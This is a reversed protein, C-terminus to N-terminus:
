ILGENPDEANPNRTKKFYKNELRIEEAEPINLGFQRNLVALWTNLGNRDTIEEMPQGRFYVANLINTFDLETVNHVHRNGHDSQLIVIADPDTKVINECVNRLRKSTYILQNLYLSKDTTDTQSAYPVRGGDRDFVYPAHPCQVYILTCAPGESRLNEPNEAWEFVNLIAERNVKKTLNPAIKELLTSEVPYLVSSRLLLNAVTDGAATKPAQDDVGAELRNTLRFKNTSEAEYVEYGLNRLITWLPADPDAAREKKRKNSYRGYELHTIDGMICYTDYHWNRSHESVTFGLARLEDYFASNDYHYYKELEDIGAYEDAVIWYIDPTDAKRAETLDYAEPVAAAAAEQPEEEAEKPALANMVGTSLIVAALALALVKAADQLFEEKLRSLGFTAALTLLVAGAVIAKNGAHLFSKQLAPAARGVNLMVLLWLAAAAAALGKRRFVLYMAAWALVGLVAMAAFYPLMGPLPIEEMNPFYLLAAPLLAAECCLLIGLALM